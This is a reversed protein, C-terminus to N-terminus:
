SIIKEVYNRIQEQMEETGNQIYDIIVCNQNSHAIELYGHRVRKHYDLGKNSFRNDKVLEKELGQEPNIDIIFAFIAINVIKTSGVKQGYWLILVIFGIFAINNLIWLFWLSTPLGRSTNWFGYSHQWKCLDKDM